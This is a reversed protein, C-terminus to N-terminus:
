LRQLYAIVADAGELLQHGDWIAPTRTGGRARLDAIVEPYFVNRIRVREALGLEVLARRARASEGDDDIAHFLEPIM